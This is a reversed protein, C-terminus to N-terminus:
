KREEFTKISQEVAQNIQNLEKATFDRYTGIPIDLKINMIRVRKLKKVNYELHECM